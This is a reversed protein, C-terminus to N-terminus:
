FNLKHFTTESNGVFLIIGNRPKDSMCFNMHIVFIFDEGM